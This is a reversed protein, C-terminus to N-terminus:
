SILEALCIDCVFSSTLCFFFLSSVHVGYQVTVNTGRCKVRGRRLVLDLDKDTLSVRPHMNQPFASCWSSVGCLFAQSKFGSGDQQSAVDHAVVTYVTWVTSGGPVVKGFGGSKRVQSDINMRPYKIDLYM